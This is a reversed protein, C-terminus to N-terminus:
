LVHCFARRLRGVQLSKGLPKGSNWVQLKKRGIYIWKGRIIVEGDERIEAEGKRLGVDRLNILTTKREADDHSTLRGDNIQTKTKM